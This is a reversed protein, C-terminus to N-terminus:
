HSAFSKLVCRWFRALRFLMGLIPYLQMQIIGIAKMFGPAPERNKKKGGTEWNWFKSFTSYM